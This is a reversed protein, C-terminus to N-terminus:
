RAREDSFNIGESMKGNIVCFLAAGKRTRAEKTYSELISEVDRASSPERYIPKMKNIASFLGNSKWRRFVHAEYSYSPLFIVLGEPSSECVRLLTHALEDCVENRLRSEHRFDLQIGSPGYSICRLHVNAPPVVHSCTFTTLLAGHATSSMMQKEQDCMRDAALAEGLFSKESSLLEQALHSFPRLTGATLVVAHADKVIDKFHLAPNLLVYRFRPQHITKHRIDLTADNVSPWEAVIKGELESYTLTRMFSEVFSMCSVHKSIPADQNTNDFDDPTPNELAHGDDKIGLHQNRFGLLKRSLSTREFFRVIKFMNLNDLKLKFLFETSSMMGSSENSTLFKKSCTLFRRIQGVYFLNRGALRASYRELYASIQSFSGDIMEMSLISSHIGRLAEPINHAEDILVLNGALSLGISERAKKSLLISKFLLSLFLNPYNTCHELL